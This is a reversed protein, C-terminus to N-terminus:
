TRIGLEAFLTDILRVLWNRQTETAYAICDCRIRQRTRVLLECALRDESIELAFFFPRCTEHAKQVDTLLRIELPLWYVGELGSPSYRQDLYTKLADYDKPRLEDIVYQRM